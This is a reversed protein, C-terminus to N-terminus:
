PGVGSGFRVLSGEESQRGNGLMRLLMQLAAEGQMGGEQVGGAQYGGEQGGVLIAGQSSVMQAQTVGQLPRTVGHHHHTVGQHGVLQTVGAAPWARHTMRTIGSPELYIPAPPDHLVPAMQAYPLPDSNFNPYMEVTTHGVSAGAAVGPVHTVVGPLAGSPAPSDQYIVYNGYDGGTVGGSYQLAYMTPAGRHAGSLSQPLPDSNLYFVGESLAGSACVASVPAYMVPAPAAAAPAAAPMMGAAAGPPTPAPLSCGAFFDGHALGSSSPAAAHVPAHAHAHAHASPAAVSTMGPLPESHLAKMAAAIAHAAVEEPVPPLPTSFLNCAAGAAESCSGADTPQQQQAALLQSVDPQCQQLQQAQQWAAAQTLQQQASSGPNSTTFAGLAALEGPRAGGNGVPRSAMQMAARRIAQQATVHQQPNRRFRRARQDAPAAQQQQEVTLRGVMDSLGVAEAGQRGVVVGAEGERRQLHWLQRQPAAQQQLVERRARRQAEPGAQLLPAAAGAGQLPLPPSRAAAHAAAAAASAAACEEPSADNPARVSEWQPHALQEELKSILAAAGTTRDDGDEWDTPGLNLARWGRSRLLRRRVALEGLGRKLDNSAYHEM